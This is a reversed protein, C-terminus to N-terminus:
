RDHRQDKQKSNQALRQALDQVCELHHPRHRALYEAVAWDDTATLKINWREGEVVRVPGNILAVAAADDTVVVDNRQCHELAAALLERRFLQPTQAAWLGSRELTEHISKDPGVRKVTEVIPYAFIASGYECAVALLREFHLPPFPRAADHVAIYECKPSLASVGAVVSDQRRAGGAVVHVTLDSLSSFNQKLSSVNAAPVVLAIEQVSPQTSFFALSWLYVPYGALPRFQKPVDGGMREGKGAAVIIIGCDAM